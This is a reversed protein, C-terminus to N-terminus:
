QHYNILETLEDLNQALTSVGFVDSSNVSKPDTQSPEFNPRDLLTNLM